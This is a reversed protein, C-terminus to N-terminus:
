PRKNGPPVPPRGPPVGPPGPTMQELTKALKSLLDATNKPTKLTLTVRTGDQRVEIRNVLDDAFSGVSPALDPPVSKLMDKRMPQYEQRLFDNASNALKFVEAAASADTADLDITLFVDASLNIKLTVFQLYEPLKPAKAFQPYDKLFKDADKLAEQAKSRIPEIASVILIDNNLDLRRLQQALPSKVDKAALMQHLISEPAAVVTKDDHIYVCLMGLAVKAGQPALKYYTKGQHTAEKAQPFQALLQTKVDVPESYRIIVGGASEEPNGSVNPGSYVVVREMKRPDLEKMPIQAFMKDQPLSALAQSQLMRQPHVIMAGVFGDALFATDFEKKGDGGQDAPKNFVPGPNNVVPGPKSERFGFYWVLVGGVVLAALAAVGGGAGLVLGLPFASRKGSKRRPKGSKRRAPKEDAEEEDETQVASRRSLTPAPAAAVATSSFLGKVSGASIWNPAGDKKLMDDPGIQGAAAMQRIQTPSYPGVPKKGRGLYWQISKTPPAPTNEGGPVSITGQCKPCRVKKGQLHEGVQL